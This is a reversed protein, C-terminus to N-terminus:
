WLRQWWGKSDLSSFLSASEILHVKQQLKEVMHLLLCCQRSSFSTNLICSHRNSDSDLICWNKCHSSTPLTGTFTKWFHRKALVSVDMSNHQSEHQKKNLHIKHDVATRFSLTRANQKRAKFCNEYSFITKYSTILLELTSSLNCNYATGNFPTRAGVCSQKSM